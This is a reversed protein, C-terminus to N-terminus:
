ATILVAAIEAGHMAQMTSMAAASYASACSIMDKKISKLSWHAMDHCHGSVLAITQM